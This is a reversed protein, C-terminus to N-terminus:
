IDTQNKDKLSYSAPTPPQHYSKEKEGEILFFFFGSPTTSDHLCHARVVVRTAFIVVVVSVFCVFFYFM